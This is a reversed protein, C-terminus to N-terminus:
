RGAPARVSAVAGALRQWEDLHLTGPRRGIQIGARDLASAAADLDGGLARAVGHRLTKRRAQFAVRALDLVAVRVADEFAPSPVLRILSSHVAPPPDFASPPVDLVREVSALSRVAVTALSWGGPEAALRAAVERQVMFVARLPPSPLELVHSILRGTLRYPLNGACLWPAGIGLETPDVQMADARVVTCTPFAGTATAALRACEPDVDVAVVRGALQALAVTLVGTGCGIEFVGADAPPALADVVADVVAADILFHQGLRRSSRM